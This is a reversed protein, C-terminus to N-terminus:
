KLVLQLFKLDLWRGFKYGVEKLTGTETFGFKKHFAISEENAADVGGIMVHFGGAKALSILAVMLKRGTGLGRAKQAIYISHEVSFKYAERPRFSGYTGFGVVENKHVAVIVPMKEHQKEEFWNLQYAYTREQYDYLVTSNLIEYNVIELIKSVDEKRAIRITVDM